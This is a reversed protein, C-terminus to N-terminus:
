RRKSSAGSRGAARRSTPARGCALEQGAGEGLAEGPHPGVAGEAMAGQEDGAREVEDNLRHPRQEVVDDAGVHFLAVAEQGPVEGVKGGDALRPGEDQRVVGLRVVERQLLRHGVGVRGAVQGHEFRDAERHGDVGLRAQGGDGAAAAPVDLVPGLRLPPECRGSGSPGKSTFDGLATSRWTLLALSSGILVSRKSRESGRKAAARM